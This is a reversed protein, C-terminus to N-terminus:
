AMLLYVWSYVIHDRRRHYRRDLDSVYFQTEYTDKVTSYGNCSTGIVNIINHLNSPIWSYFVSFM